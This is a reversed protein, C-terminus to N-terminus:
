DRNIKGNLFNIETLRLNCIPFGVCFFTVGAAEREPTTTFASFTFGLTYRDINIDYRLTM